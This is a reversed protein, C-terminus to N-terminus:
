AANTRRVYLYLTILFTFTIASLLPFTVFGFLDIVKVACDAGSGDVLCPVFGAERTDAPIMQYVYQYLAVLLGFVSLGIGYLPFHVTDRARYAILALLAQPYIAIRQLWCLSCPVFGFYESYVLSLAVSGITTVIILPWLWPTIREGLYAGKYVFYDVLLIITVAALALGGIALVLNLAPLLLMIRNYM